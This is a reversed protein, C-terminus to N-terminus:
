VIFTNNLHDGVDILGLASDRTSDQTGATLELLCSVVLLVVPLVDRM